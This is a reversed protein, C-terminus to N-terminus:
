KKRTLSNKAKVSVEGSSLTERGNETEVILNCMSDIDVAKGCRDGDASHIVVKKGVLLSKRRYENILEESGLKEMYEDTQTLIEVALKGRFDDAVYPMIAAAIGKISEDYGDKPPIINIGIGVVAYELRNSEFDFKTETLIGAVKRDALYLDNVWKIECDAYTLNKVAKSVACAMMPTLLMAKEIPLKNPVLISMYLGCNEPSYFTKGQRGRGATQTDAIVCVRGREGDAAKKMLYTNTSDISEFVEVKYDKYSPNM